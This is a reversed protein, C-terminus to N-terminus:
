GASAVEHHHVEVPVGSAEIALVIKSRVDQQTDAPPTPFYGRKAPIQAGLNPGLDKGSNWWGEVSDVSFFSTHPNSSYRVDNFLFFEAEPGWYSIEAFGTQKLHEEAKKAVNRPDRSYAELSVPDYIDCIVDLTPIELVPDLLATGADPILLMDSEHIEQFGRISSGDFGLGEEFLEETFERAPISFHQWTGLLDTFRIDVIQVGQEQASAVVEKPTKKVRPTEM